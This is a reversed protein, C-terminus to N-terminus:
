MPELLFDLRTKSGQKVVVGEITKTKYGQASAVFTYKGPLLVRHYDGHEPDTHVTNFNDVKVAASLNVKTGEAAKGQVLGYAGNHVYEMYKLMSEKNDLWYSNLEVDKPWKNYSLEVTIEMDGTRLYNWDQMGGYLVYWDAGNTVGNHFESSRSMTPSSGAYTLALARFLKDDPSPADRGSIREKNGDYPYNAVVSGGHFNASLVFNRSLSFKMMAETEKEIKAPNGTWQDPFNRNLDVGKSNGRRGLEFGDPNMTPIIYIETTNVLKTLRADTGYSSTL